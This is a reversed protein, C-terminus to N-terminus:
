LSKFIDIRQLVRRKYTQCAEKILTPDSMGGYPTVLDITFDPTDVASYQCSFSKIEKWKTWNKKDPSLYFEGQEKKVCWNYM